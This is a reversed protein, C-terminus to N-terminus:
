ELPLVLRVPLKTRRTVDARAEGTSMNVAWGHLFNLHNANQENRGQVINQYDYQNVSATNVSSTTSWHWGPPSAPFLIPDLGPPNAAKHVLGQLELARPVRLHLGREKELDRALAMAEGHNLLLPTGICTKGNWHMGEVCRPWAVLARADLVYAGDDSLGMYPPNPVGAAHVASAAFVPGLWRAARRLVTRSSLNM